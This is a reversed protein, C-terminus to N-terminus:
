QASTSYTNGPKSIFGDDKSPPPLIYLNREGTEHHGPDPGDEIGKSIGDNITQTINHDGDEALLGNTAAADFLSNHIVYETLHGSAVLQGLTRAITYLAQHRGGKLTAALHRSLGDLRKLAVTNTTTLSKLTKVNDLFRNEVTGPVLPPQLTVWESPLIPLNDWTRHKLAWQYINGNPHISPPAIVYAGAARIELKPAIQCTKIQLGPPWRYYYHHGRGTVATWTQPMPLANEHIWTVGAEGDIDIVALRNPTCAIGINYQPNKTWWQQIQDSDNVAISHEKGTRSLAPKKGNEVCPMVAIGQDGYEVAASALKSPM